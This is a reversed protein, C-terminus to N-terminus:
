WNLIVIGNGTADKWGRWIQVGTATAEVYSSGGGGGGGGGIGISADFIGAGGGGGGDYGCSSSGCGTAGGGGDRLRGSEGYQPSRGGTRGGSGGQDQTGGTGGAGCVFYCHGGKGAGATSGGGKGGHGDQPFNHGGEGGGGGSVVVRDALADGGERVDSAGGGGYGSYSCGNTSYCTRGGAGGGNFGGAMPTGEGGVYIALSESPTVPIVASVRGGLGGIASGAGHAGLANVRIRTVGSPVKFTQKKGTYWLRVHHTFALPAVGGPSTAAPVQSGGCASLLAAALGISLSCGGFHLTRM